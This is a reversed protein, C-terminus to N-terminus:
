SAAGELSLQSCCSQSQPPNKLNQLPPAIKNKEKPEHRQLDSQKM